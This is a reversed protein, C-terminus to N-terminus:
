GWTCSAGSDREHKGDKSVDKTYVTIKSNDWVKELLTKAEKKPEEKKPEEKKPSEKKPEEKKPEEKKPEEPPDEAHAKNVGAALVIGAGLAGGAVLKNFRRRSLSPLPKIPSAPPNPVGSNTVDDPGAPPPTTNSDM